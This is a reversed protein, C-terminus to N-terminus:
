QKVDRQARCISLLTGAWLEPTSYMSISASRDGMMLLQGDDVRILKLLADRLSETNGARFLYGNFGDRLFSASAGVAQSLLLPLGASACEHAVVGWPEKLSPMVFCGYGAIVDPLRDPQVFPLIQIGETKGLKNELPGAGILTLTWGNRDAIPISKFADYLHLIGKEPVLRGVYLFTRPYKEEKAPRVRSYSAHFAPQDASYVGLSIREISFGLRRAYEFQELGTVWAHSFIRHLFFRSVLSAIHQRLHGKWQTDSVMVVPIGKKRFFRGVILYDKDIWGSILVADPNLEKCAALLEYKDGFSDKEIEKV